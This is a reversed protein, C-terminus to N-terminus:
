PPPPPPPPPPPRPPPPPPPGVVFAGMRPQPATGLTGPRWIIAYLPSANSFNNRRFNGNGGDPSWGSAIRPSMSPSERPTDRWTSSPTVPDPLVKVIALTIAPVSRGANIM